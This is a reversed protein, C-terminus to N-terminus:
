MNFFKKFNNEVANELDLVDLSLESAVKEYVYKVFSPQNVEGRHPVPAMYPCDTELLIRSLPISKLIEGKKANKFTVVGGFAFYGGLNLLTKATELSGSYCHMLFGKLKSAYATLIDVTDSWADRSHIVVPKNLTIALRLQKEFANIQTQKDFNLYHYDLGIEGIALCKETLALSKIEQLVSDNVNGADDPHCGATFYIESYKQSLTKATKTSNVSHGIEVVLKVGNNLYNNRVDDFNDLLRNDSLHAHSDILM